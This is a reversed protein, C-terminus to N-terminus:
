TLARSYQLLVTGSDNIQEVSKLSFRKLYDGHDMLSIGKGFVLPEITLYVEDVLDQEFAWEYVARGGLICVREAGLRKLEAMVDVGAPNMWALRGHERQIGSVSQTFVLLNRVSLPEKALDYTARGVIVADSVDLKSRMFLFDEESTWETTLFSSSKSIKGDLTMAALVFCTM